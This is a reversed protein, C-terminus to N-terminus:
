RTWQCHPCKGCVKHFGEIDTFRNSQIIWKKLDNTTDIPGGVDAFCYKWCLGEDIEKEVAPCYFLSENM